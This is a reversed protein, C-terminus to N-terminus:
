VVSCNYVLVPISENLINTVCLIPKNLVFQRM